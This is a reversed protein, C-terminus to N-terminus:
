KKASARLADRYAMVAEFKNDAFHKTLVDNNKVSVVFRSRNEIVAM